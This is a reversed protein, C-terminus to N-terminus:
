TSHDEWAPATSYKHVLDPTCQVTFDFSYQLYVSELWIVPFCGGKYSYLWGKSPPIKLSVKVSFNPERYFTKRLHEMTLPTFTLLCVVASVLFCLFDCDSFTWLNYKDLLMFTSRVMVSICLIGHKITRISWRLLFPTTELSVKISDFNNKKKEYFLYFAFFETSTDWNEMRLM